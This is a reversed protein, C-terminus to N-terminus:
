SLQKTFAELSIPVFRVQDGPRCYCPDPRGADFIRLPTQGIINWGGPSPLPYIGTQEGAIGVSGAPVQTRPQKLRPTALQPDVTGMYPFGPLFGLMYVTYTPATHLTIIAEESLGKQQALNALDPGLSPHYCVPIELHRGPVAAATAAGAEQLARTVFATIWARAPRKIEQRIRVANYRVALSAYAPMLDTIYPQQLSQLHLFAQMVQAHIVPSIRQEWEIMIANDGLPTISFTTNRM